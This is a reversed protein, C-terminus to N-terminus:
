EFPWILKVKAIVQNTKIPGFYRSDYSDPHEGLVLIEDPDLTQCTSQTPSEKLYKDINNQATPIGNIWLDRNEDSCFENSSIGAIYKALNGKFKDINFIIIDGIQLNHSNIKIYLGRPMSSTRNIFFIQGIQGITLCAMVLFLTLFLFRKDIM